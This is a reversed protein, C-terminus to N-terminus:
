YRVELAREVQRPSTNCINYGRGQIISTGLSTSKDFLLSSCPVPTGVIEKQTYFIYDTFTVDTDLYFNDNGCQLDGPATGADTGIPFLELVTDYYLGCEVATDAEYFSIQSDKALSSLITQKFSLNSIGLAISLVLTVILVTFLMAFGSQASLSKKNPKLIFYKM